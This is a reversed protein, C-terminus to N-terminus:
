TFLRSFFSGKGALNDILEFYYTENKLGMNAHQLKEDPMVALTFPVSRVQFADALKPNRAVNCKVVLVGNEEGYKELKEDILKTLIQCPGCTPSYFDIFVPKDNNKIIEKYNNDTLEM